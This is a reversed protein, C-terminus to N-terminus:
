QAPDIKSPLRLKHPPNLPLFILISNVIYNGYTFTTYQPKMAGINNSFKNIKNQQPKRLHPMPDFGSQGSM